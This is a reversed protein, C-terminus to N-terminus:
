AHAKVYVMYKTFPLLDILIVEPKFLTQLFFCEILPNTYFFIIFFSSGGGGCYHILRVM